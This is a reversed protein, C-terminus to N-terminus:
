GLEQALLDYEESTMEEKEGEEPEEGRVEVVVTASKEKRKDALRKAYSKEVMGRMSGTACDILKKASDYDRM